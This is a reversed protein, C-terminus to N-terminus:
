KGKAWYKIVINNIPVYLLLMQSFTICEALSTKEFKGPLRFVFMALLSADFYYNKSKVM